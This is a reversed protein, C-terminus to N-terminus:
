PCSGDLFNQGHEKQCFAKRFAYAFRAELYSPEAQVGHLELVEAYIAGVSPHPYFHEPLM